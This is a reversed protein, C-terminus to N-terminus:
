DCPQQIYGTSDFIFGAGLAEEAKPPPIVSSTSAGAVNGAQTPRIGGPPQNPDASAGGDQDDLSSPDMPDTSAVSVVSPLLRAALDAMDPPMPPAAQAAGAALLSAASIM